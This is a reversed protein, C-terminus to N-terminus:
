THVRRDCSRSRRRLWACTIAIGTVVFPLAPSRTSGEAGSSRSLACASAAEDATCRGGEIACPERAYRGDPAGATDVARTGDTLYVACLAATDDATLTSDRPGPFTQAAMVASPSASHALGLVHGLEHTLVFDLDYSQAHDTAGGGDSTFFAYDHSNVELAAGLIRGSGKDLSLTTLALERAQAAIGTPSRPGYPWADDRFALVNAGGHSARVADSCTSPGLYRADITPRAGDPCRVSMWRGLAGSLARRIAENSFQRVPAAAVGIGVCANAWFTPHGCTGCPGACPEETTSRCFAHASQTSAILMVAVAPVLVASRVTRM